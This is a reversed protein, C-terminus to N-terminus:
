GKLFDVLARLAASMHRGSPYYLFMREAPPMWEQMVYVLRGQAVWPAAYAEYTYCLGAGDLAAQLLGPLDDMALSGSTAVSLPQGGHRFEWKFLAGSPFRVQLCEHAALEQPTSPAGHRKLYDPSACVAFRIDPGVPVAVMDQQLLEGFRMGADFGQEVIDVVADNAAIELAVDPCHERWRALVPALVLQAAARPVNLRLRGRPASREENLEDLAAAVDALAPQLRALLQAGAPSPSVSRTTRNLLRVGLDHELKGIAHSLASPSVGMGAAAKRFSRSQAVRVFADLGNLDVNM